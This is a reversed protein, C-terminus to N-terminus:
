RVCVGRVYAQLGIVQDSLRDADGAVEQYREVSERLVRETPDADARPGTTSDTTAARAALAALAALLRMRESKASAASDTSTRKLAQYDHIVKANTLQLAQEKARAAELDAIHATKQESVYREFELRESLGGQHWAFWHSGALAIAAAIGAWTRWNLLIAIM